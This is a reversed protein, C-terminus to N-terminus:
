QIVNNFNTELKILIISSKEFYIRKASNFFFFLRVYFSIFSFKFYLGEQIWELFTKTLKVSVFLHSFLQRLNLVRAQSLKKFLTLLTILYKFIHSYLGLFNVNSKDGDSLLRILLYNVIIKIEKFFFNM